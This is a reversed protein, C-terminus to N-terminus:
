PACATELAALLQERGCPKTLRIQAVRRAAEVEAPASASGSLVVRATLPHRRQVNGLFEIGGMDPMRLDSVVVDVPTTALLTLAEQASACTLVEWRDAVSRMIRKLGDAVAPEDDVFLVTRKRPKLSDPTM